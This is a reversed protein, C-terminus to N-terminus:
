VRLVNLLVLEGILCTLCAGMLWVWADDRSQQRESSDRYLVHRGRALRDTLVNSGLARLNSEEPAIEVAICAVTKSDDVAGSKGDGGRQTPLASPAASDAPQRPTSGETASEAGPRIDDDASATPDNDPTSRVVRYVGPWRPDDWQWAVGTAHEALRGLDGSLAGDDGAASTSSALTTPSARTTTPRPGGHGGSSPEGPPLVKLRKVTTVEPPLAVVMPEGCHYRARDDSGAILEAILEDILPVFAGSRPLTSEQLDANVLAIRGAGAATLVIFASQDHFVARLDDQLGDERPHSNLGGALRLESAVTPFHGAFINLPSRDAHSAALRLDRRPQAAPAPVFDVPLQLGGSLAEDLRKLNTADVAEATFYLVARGRRLRDAVLRIAEPALAGPHDLVILDAGSLAAASLESPNLRRVRTRPRATESAGLRGPEASRASDGPISGGQEGPSRTNGPDGTLGEGGMNGYPALSCEVFTASNVRGREPLRSVLLYRPPPDVSVVVPREDDASLADDADVLRARGFYWGEHHAEISGALTTRPARSPCVGDLRTTVEGLDVEVTVPRPADTFNAVDVELQVRRGHVGPRKARVALIALNPSTEAPAVSELGIETEAPVSSFDARSWCSRQFDSIVILETRKGAGADALMRGAVELAAPVDLRVPRPQCRALEAQLADFNASPAPFVSRPRSGALLLNAKLGPRYRFYRGAVTRARDMASMREHTAAMSQSVDLLVVRLTDAEGGAESVSRRSFQPRAVALALLLIALTRLTLILLDRLRHRARRQQVAERVFRWTSLPVRKPRPRTLLHVALPLAAGIAGIWLAWPHLFTM